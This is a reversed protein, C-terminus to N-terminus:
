PFRGIHGAASAGPEAPLLARSIITEASSAKTPMRTCSSSTRPQTETKPLHTASRITAWWIRRASQCILALAPQYLRRPSNVTHLWDCDTGFQLENLTAM